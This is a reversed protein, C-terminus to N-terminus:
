VRQHPPRRTKMSAPVMRYNQGQNSDWYEQGGVQYCVAFEAHQLRPPLEASFSFSDSGASPYPDIVFDCDLDRHTRWGDLTLRLRVAKQFGVNRVRVTGSLLGGGLVCRALCVLGSDLRWRFSLYDSAPPDFDLVLPDQSDQLSTSLSQWVRLPIRVDSFPCFVRVRTLSLGRHDAFTVQKRTKRCSPDVGAPGGCASSTERIEPSSAYLFDESSPSLFLPLMDVPM